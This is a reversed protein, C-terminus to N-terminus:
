GLKLDDADKSRVYQVRAGHLKAAHKTWSKSGERDEILLRPSVDVEAIGHELVQTIATGLGGVEDSLSRAWKHLNFLLACNRRYAKRVLELHGEQSLWIRYDRLQTMVEPPSPKGPDADRARLRADGM